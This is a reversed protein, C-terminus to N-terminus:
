HLYDRDNRGSSRGGDIVRFGSTKKPKGGFLRKLKPGFVRPHWNGTILFWGALAGGIHTQFAIGNRRPDNAFFLVLDIGVSLWILYRVKVPIVFFLLVERTPFLMSWAALLGFIAGSAGVIPQDFWAPVLKGVLVSFVGAFLGTLLWFKLFARGGWRRELEPGFFFLAICNFLIHFLGGFDHLWAYTAVQWVEPIPDGPIVASPRLILHAIGEIALPSKAFNVLVSTVLWIVPLAILLRKVVPTLNFAFQFQSRSYEAL